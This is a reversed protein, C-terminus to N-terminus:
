FSYGVGVTALVTGGLDLRFGSGNVSHNFTGVNRYEAGGFVRWSEDIAYSVRGAVYVGVLVETRSSSGSRTLQESGPLVLTELFDFSGDVVALDLGGSLSASWKTSIPYEIFPGIRI